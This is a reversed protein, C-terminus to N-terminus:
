IRRLKVQKFKAVFDNKEILQLKVPLQQVAILIEDGLIIPKNIYADIQKVAQVSTIEIENDDTFTPNILYFKLGIGGRFLVIM